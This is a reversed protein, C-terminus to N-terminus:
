SKNKPEFKQRFKAVAGVKIEQAPAGTYFPNCQSCSSVSFGQSSTSITEFKAGCVCSCTISHVPLHTFKEQKSAPTKKVPTSLNTKSM